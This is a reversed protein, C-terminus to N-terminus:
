RWAAAVAGAAAFSAEAAAVTELALGCAATFLSRGPIAPDLRRAALAADLRRAAGAADFAGFAKGTPVIGFAPRGGADMWAGFSPTDLFAELDRHADFSVIDPDAEALLAFPPRACCHIGTAAGSDRLAGIVTALADHDAIPDGSGARELAFGPEDLVILVPRGSRGLAEVQARAARTLIRAIERVADRDKALPADGAWLLRSLTIPGTIQGKVAAADPFRGADLAALFAALGAAHKPSPLEPVRDLAELFAATKGDRIRYGAGERRLELAGIADGLFQRLLGEEPARQPLQPWFPLEPCRAAVFEVAAAADTHPLSGVGTVAGGPLRQRRLDM